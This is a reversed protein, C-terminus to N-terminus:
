RVDSAQDLLAACAEISREVLEPNSDGLVKSVYQQTIDLASAIDAQRRRPEELAAAIVRWQADTFSHIFDDFLLAVTEARRVAEQRDPAGVFRLSRRRGKAEEVATRAAIFAPGRAAASHQPLPEEVGGIGLGISWCGTRWTAVLSRFVAPASDLVGQVEDGVTREFALVTPIGKLGELLRPVADASTRSSRQDITLVYM